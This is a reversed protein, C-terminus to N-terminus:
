EETAGARCRVLIVLRRWSEVDDTGVREVEARCRGGQLM